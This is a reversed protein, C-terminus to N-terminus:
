ATVARLRALVADAYRAVAGPVLALFLQPEILEVEMVRPRDTGVLDVRAYLPRAALAGLVAEGAALEAPRPTHVTAVGGYQAQVRWDSPHPTKRVAHSLEGGVYILSVEGAAIEPLFPQVLADGDLLLTELHAAAAPDGRPVRLTDRSGASVAPKIVIEGRGALAQERRAPCAGVDLMETPVVPVGAGGLEALYGKHLNWLMLEAPNELATAAATANIWARFDEPRDLYDWTTRCVVLPIQGFPYDASWPVIEARVGAVALADVVLHTEPDPIPLTAGTAFVIQPAGDARPRAPPGPVRGRAVPRRVAALMRELVVAVGDEDNAPAIEDAADRVAPHANGVAVARGAWRLLSLDNPMDGFAIVDEAGASLSACLRALGRGKDVGAASIELLGDASNSHSLEVQHGIAEGAGHLLTDASHEEHRFLLKLPAIDLLETVPAVRTRDPVPWRTRYDPEHGFGHAHEVAWSGGPFRGNLTAVVKLVVAPDIPDETVGAEAAFDWTVAGNVCVALGAAGAAAAIPRVWRVPRATCLVVRAGAAQVASLARVTRDSLTGDSRLLTGDLDSAIIRPLM